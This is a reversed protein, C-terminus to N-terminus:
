LTLDGTFTQSTSQCINGYFDSLGATLKEMFFEVFVTM